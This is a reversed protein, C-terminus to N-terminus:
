YIPLFLDRKHHIMNCKIVQETLSILKWRDLSSVGRGTSRKTYGNCYIIDRGVV